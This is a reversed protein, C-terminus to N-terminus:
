LNKIKRKSSKSRTRRYKRQKTLNNTTTPRGGNQKTNTNEQTPRITDSNLKPRITNSNLREIQAILEKINNDSANINNTKNLQKVVIKYTQKLENIVDNLDNSDNSTSAENNYALLNVLIFYKNLLFVLQEYMLKDQDNNQLNLGVIAYYQKHRIYKIFGNIDDPVFKDRLTIVFDTSLNFDLINTLKKGCTDNEGM